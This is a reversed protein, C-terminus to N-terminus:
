LRKRSKNWLKLVELEVMPRITEPMRSLEQRREERTKFTMVHAAAIYIHLSIVSRGSDNLDDYNRKNHLVEIVQDTVRAM